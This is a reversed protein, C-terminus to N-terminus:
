GAVARVAFWWVGVAAIAVSAVQLGGRRFWTRGGLWWVPPLVAALVALQGAEVGVNFSALAMPPPAAPAVARWAGAFGFGHVLGLLFALPWRRGRATASCNELGVWAISLAIAPGVLAPRPAWIGLAGLALTVSHALTFATVVRLVSAWPGGILLVAVLFLLHDYATLVHRLGHRFPSPPVADDGAVPAAGRATLALSAQRDYLVTRVTEFPSTAAVLHRHGLSLANLADLRLSFGSADAPCRYAVVLEVGDQEIATARELTAACPGTAVAVVVGGGIWDALAPGGGAVEAASLDGDRDADLAPLATALERRAFVLDARVEAGDSRYAGRSLGVAHADAPAARFAAALFSALLLLARIM